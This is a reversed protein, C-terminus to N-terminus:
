VRWDFNAAGAQERHQHMCLVGRMVDPFDSALTVSGLVVDGLDRTLQTLTTLPMVDAPVRMLIQLDFHPKTGLAGKFVAQDLYELQAPPALEAVSALLRLLLVYPTMDRDSQITGLVPGPPDGRALGLYDFGARDGRPEALPDLPAYAGTLCTVSLLETELRPECVTIVSGPRMRGAPHDFSPDAAPPRETPAPPTYSLEIAAYADLLETVLIEPNELYDICDRIQAEPDLARAREYRSRLSTFPPTSPSSM